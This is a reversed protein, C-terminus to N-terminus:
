TCFKMHIQHQTKTKSGQFCFAHILPERYSMVTLQKTKESEFSRWVQFFCSPESKYSPTKKNKIDSLIIYLPGLEVSAVACIENTDANKAAGKSFVNNPPQSSVPAATHKLPSTFPSFFNFLQLFSPFIFQLLLFSWPHFPAKSFPTDFSQKGQHWIAM